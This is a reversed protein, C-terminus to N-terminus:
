DHMPGTYGMGTLMRYVAQKQRDAPWRAESVAVETGIGRILALLDQAAEHANLTKPFEGKGISREFIREYNRAAKDLNSEWEKQIMPDGLAESFFEISIRWASIMETRLPLMVFALDLINSDFRDVIVAQEELSQDLLSRYTQSLLDRKNKFYHSVIATSAGAADAIVKFSIGSIGHQAILQAALAVVQKRRLDHDVAKPM